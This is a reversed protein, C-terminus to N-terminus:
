GSKKKVVRVRGPFKKFIKPNLTTVLHAKKLIEQSDYSTWCGTSIIIGFFCSFKLFPPFLYDMVINKVKLMSIYRFLWCVSFIRESKSSSVPVSFVVRIPIMIFAMILMSWVHYFLYWVHAISMCLTWEIIMTHDYSMCLTWKIIMTHDYSM